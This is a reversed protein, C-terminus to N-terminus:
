IIRDNRIIKSPFKVLWNEKQKMQTISLRSEQLNTWPIISMWHPCAHHELYSCILCFFLLSIYHTVITSQIICLFVVPHLLQSTQSISSCYTFSSYFPSPPFSPSTRYLLIYKLCERSTNYNTHSIAKIPDNKLAYKKYKYHSALQTSWKTFNEWIEVYNILFNDCGHMYIM